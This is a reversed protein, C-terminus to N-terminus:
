EDGGSTVARCNRVCAAQDAEPLSSSACCTACEAYKDFEDGETGLGQIACAVATPLPFPGPGVSAEQAMTSTAISLGAITGLVMSILRFKLTKNM